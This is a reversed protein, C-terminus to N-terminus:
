LRKQFKVCGCFKYQKVKNPNLAIFWCLSTSGDKKVM